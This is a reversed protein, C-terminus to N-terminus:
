APPWNKKLIWNQVREIADLVEQRTPGRTVGKDTVGTTALDVVVAIIASTGTPGVNEKVHFEDDGPSTAYIRTAM